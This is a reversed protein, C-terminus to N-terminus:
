LKDKPTFGLFLKGEGDYFYTKHAQSYSIPCNIRRDYLDFNGTLNESIKFKKALQELSGMTGTSVYANFAKCYELKKCLGLQSINEIM